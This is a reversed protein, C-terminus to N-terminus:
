PGVAASAIPSVNRDSRTADALRQTIVSVSRDGKAAESTVTRPVADKAVIDKM